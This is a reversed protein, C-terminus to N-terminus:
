DKESEQNQQEKVTGHGRHERLPEECKHIIEGTEPDRVVEKYWNKARDILRELKM